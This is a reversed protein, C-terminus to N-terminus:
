IGVNPRLTAEAIKAAIESRNEALWEEQDPM